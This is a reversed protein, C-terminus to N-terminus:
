FPLVFRVADDGAKTVVSGDPALIVLTPIGEVGFLQACWVFSSTLMRELGVVYIDCCVLSACLLSRVENLTDARERDAFPLALWPMTGFYEAFQGEDRDASCFVVEFDKRAAKIKKYTEALKPTFNRCPGCWHASFYIGVYKGKISREGEEGGIFTDGLVEHVSPPTWPYKLGKPDKSLAARGDNSITKGTKADILILSPIGSVKYKKSLKAKLDRQEFPLALWPMEAFYADFQEQDKDSSVFVIEFPKDGSDKIAKYSEAHKPTFGRCPPCWHASFYLGVVGTSPLSGKLLEVGNFLKEM